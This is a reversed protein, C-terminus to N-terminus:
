FDFPDAVDLVQFADSSNPTDFGEPTAWRPPDLPIPFTYRGPYTGRKRDEAIADLLERRLIDGANIFEIGGGDASWEGLDFVGIDHVRKIQIGVVFYAIHKWGLVEHALHCYHAGQGHWMQRAIQSAAVHERVDTLGKFDVIVGGDGVPYMLDLRGKTPLGTRPDTARLSVEPCGKDFLDFTLPHTRVARAMNFCEIFESETLCTRDGQDAAWAKYAKTARSGQEVWVAFEDHFKHPELMLCHTARGKARSTTEEDDETEAWRFMAASHDRWKITSWNLADWAAYEEFPVDVADAPLWDPISM